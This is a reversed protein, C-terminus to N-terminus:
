GEAAVGKLFITFDGGFGLFFDCVGDPCKDCGEGAFVFDNDSVAIAGLDAVDEDVFLLGGGVFSGGHWEFGGDGHALTLDTVPEGLGNMISEGLFAGVAFNGGNNGLDDYIYIVRGELIGGLWDTLEVVFFLGLSEGFDVM